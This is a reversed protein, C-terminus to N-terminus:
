AAPVSRCFAVFRRTDRLPPGHGFCVLRPELEGLRRVSERNRAPDPSWQERPEQLGPISLWPHQNFLVDGLLLTRDSERWFAVHGPSHGPTELVTFGGTEDGEVLARDVPVGPGGVLRQMWRLVTSNSQVAAMDDAEAAAVDGKGCWFPIARAECV